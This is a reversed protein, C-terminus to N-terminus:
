AARRLGALGAFGNARLAKRVKRAEGKDLKGYAQPAPLLKGKSGIKIAEGEVTIVKRGLKVTTM